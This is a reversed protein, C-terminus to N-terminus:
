HRRGLIQSPGLVSLMWGYLADFIRKLSPPPNPFDYGDCIVAATLMTIVWPLLTLLLEGGHNM